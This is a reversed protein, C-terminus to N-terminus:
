QTQTNRGSAEVIDTQKLFLYIKKKKGDYSRKKHAIRSNHAHCTRAFFTAVKEYKQSVNQSLDINQIIM